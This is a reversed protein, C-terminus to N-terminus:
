KENLAKELQYTKCSLIINMAKDYDKQSLTKNPEFGNMVALEARKCVTVAKVLEDYMEPSLKITEPGTTVKYRSDAVEYASAPRSDCPLLPRGMAKAYFESFPPEIKENSEGGIMTGSELGRVINAAECFPKSRDAPPNFKSIRGETDALRSRIIMEAMPRYFAFVADSSTASSIRYAKILSTEEATFAKPNQGFLSDEYSSNCGALLLISFCICVFLERM